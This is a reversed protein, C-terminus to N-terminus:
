NKQEKKVHKLGSTVDGGKNIAAFLNARPAGGPGPKTVPTEKKPATTKPAEKASSLSDSGKPNFKLGTTHHEKVYAALENGVNAWGDVWDKHLKGVDGEKKKYEVLVKIHYFRAAEVMDKIFPVPTNPVAVWQALKAGDGLGRLHNSLEGRNHKFVYDGLDKLTALVPKVLESYSEDSPKKSRSAIDVVKRM